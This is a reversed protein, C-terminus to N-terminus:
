TVYGCLHSFTYTKRETGTRNWKIYIVEMQLWLAWLCSMKQPLCKSSFIMDKFAEEVSAVEVKCGGLSVSFGGWKNYTPVFLLSIIYIKIFPFNASFNLTNEQLTRFTDFTVALVGTRCKLALHQEKSDQCATSTRRKSHTLDSNM